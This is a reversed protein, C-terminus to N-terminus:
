LPWAEEVEIISGGTAELAKVAMVRNKIAPGIGPTCVENARLGVLRYNMGGDWSQHFAGGTGPPFSGSEFVM